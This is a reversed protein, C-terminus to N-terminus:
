RQFVPLLQYRPSLALVAIASSYVNGFIRDYGPEEAWSGDAAQNDVLTKCLTPFFEQWHRGGLQFMAQSCYFAGYFFRDHQGVQELYKGFPRALIWDGAARAEPTQHRGAL